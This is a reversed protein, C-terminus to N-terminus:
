TIIETSNIKLFNSPIIQNNYETKIWDDSRAIDSIRPEDIQGDFFGPSANGSRAFFAARTVANVNTGAFLQAIDLNGDIFIKMTTGDWTAAAYHPGDDDIETIGTLVGPFGFENFVILEIVGSANIRFQFAREGDGDRSFIQELQGGGIVKVWGSLTIFQVDLSPSDPIQVSQNIGNYSLAKGIQGQVSAPTSQPTGDNNNATSDIISAPPIQNSHWVGKFNSDWVNPPDQNDIATPNNYYMFLKTDTPNITPLKVWIIVQGTASDFFEIEYKLESKDSLAFRIDEGNVQTRGILNSITLSVLLPFDTQTSPTFGAVVELESRTKWDTDFWNAPVQGPATKILEGTTTELLPVDGSSFIESDEWFTNGVPKQSEYDIKQSDEGFMAVQNINQLSLNRVSGELYETLDLNRGIFAFNKNINIAISFTNDLVGNKYTTFEGNEFTTVIYDYGNLTLTALAAQSGSSGVMYDVEEVSHVQGGTAGASGFGFITQPPTSDVAPKIWMKVTTPGTGSPFNAPDLLDIYGDPTPSVSNFLLDPGLDPDTTEIVDFHVTGDNGNSTSDLVKGADIKNCLYSSLFRAAYVAAPDSLDPAGLKGAVIQIGELDKVSPILVTIKGKGTAKIMFDTEFKLQTTGFFDYVNFDHGDAEQLIGPGLDVDMTLPYNTQTQQVSGPRITKYFFKAYSPDAQPLIIEISSGVTAPRIATGQPLLPSLNPQVFHGQPTLQELLLM